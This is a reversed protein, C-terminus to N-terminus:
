MISCKNNDGTALQLKREYEEVEELYSVPPWRKETVYELTEGQLQGFEERKEFALFNSSIFHCCWKDLQAANHLQFYLLHLM